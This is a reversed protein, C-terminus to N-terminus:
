PTMSKGRAAERYAVPSRGTHRKFARSFYLPDRFGARFAVEGVTLSTYRLLRQAELMVRETILEKTPRGATATLARSLAAPPVALARAYHAADHHRRFDRELLRVFRRHLEADPDAGAPRDLRAADDLRELWLLLTTVLHREVDASVADPPRAAEAALAAVVAELHVADSPPVAITRGGRGALLWAPGGTADLLLEDGFRVVAGVLGHARRFQHVAGRGIVTVSGPVVPVPEGDLLHEGAGAAVWVLEHYAHRHPERVPADAGVALGDM